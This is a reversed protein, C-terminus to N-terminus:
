EMQPSTRQCKIKELKQYLLLLCGRVLLKVPEKQSVNMVMKATGFREEEPRILFAAACFQYGSLHILSCHVYQVLDM